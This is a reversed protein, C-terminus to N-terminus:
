LPQAHNLTGTVVEWSTARTGIKWEPLCAPHVSFESMYLISM